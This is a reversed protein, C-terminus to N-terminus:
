NYYPLLLILSIIVYVSGIIILFWFPKNNKEEKAVRYDYFTRYKGDLPNKRFLDFLKIMGFALMDFTGGNSALIIVGIGLVVIGVVFFADVIIHIAAEPTTQNFVGRTYAILFIIASTILITLLYKLSTKKM